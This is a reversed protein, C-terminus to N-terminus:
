EYGNGGEKNEDQRAFMRSVAFTELVGIISLLNFAFGSFIACLVLTIIISLALSKLRQGLMHSIFRFGIYAYVVFFVNHLNLLAISFVSGDSEFINFIALIVFFIAFPSSTTFVDTAQVAKKSLFGLLLLCVANALATLALSVIVVISPIMSMYLDVAQRVLGGELLTSIRDDAGAASLAADLTAELMARFDNAEARLAENAANFDFGVSSFATLYVSLLILLSLIVTSLGVFFSKGAGRELWATILAGILIAAAGFVSGSPNLLLDLFVLVLSLLFSLWHKRTFDLTYVTAISGGLIPLFLIALESLLVLGAGFIVTLIVSIIFVATIKSKKVDAFRRNTM